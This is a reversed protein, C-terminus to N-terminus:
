PMDRSIKCDFSIGIDEVIGGRFAERALPFAIKELATNWLTLSFHTLARRTM